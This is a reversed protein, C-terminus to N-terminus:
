TSKTKEYKEFFLTKKLIYQFIFCFKGVEILVIKPLLRGTIFLNEHMTDVVVFHRDKQEGKQPGREECDM